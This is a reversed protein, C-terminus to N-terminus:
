EYLNDHVNVIFTTSKYPPFILKDKIEFGFLKLVLLTATRNVIDFFTMPRILFTENNLKFSGSIYVSVCVCLTELYDM